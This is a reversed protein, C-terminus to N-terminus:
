YIMYGLIRCKEHDERLEALRLVGVPERKVLRCAVAAAPGVHQIGVSASFPAVGVVHAVPPASWGDRGLRHSERPLEAREHQGLRRARIGVRRHSAYSCRPRDAFSLMEDELARRFRRCGPDQAGSPIARDPPFRAAPRWFRSRRTLAPAASPASPCAAPAACPRTPTRRGHGTTAPRPSQCRAPRPRAARPMSRGRSPARDAGGTGRTPVPPLGRKGEPVVPGPFTAAM